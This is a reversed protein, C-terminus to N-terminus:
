QDSFPYDMAVSAPAVYYGEIYNIGYGWLTQLAGASEVHSAIVKKAYGQVEKICKSIAQKGPDTGIEQMFSGDLKVYTVDTLHALVKSPTHSAGYRTIATHIKLARVDKTFQGAQKLYTSADTETFQLILSEGGIKAAKLAVSIWPVLSADALSDSTLTVMIRAHHGNANHEALAKLANLIVWRDIKTNLGAAAAAQLFDAPQLEKDKLPLRLLVEYTEEANEELNLIAQWYLKFLNKELATHLHKAMGTDTSADIMDIPNRVFVGNGASNTQRVKVAADAAYTLADQGTPVTEDIIAAGISVTVRLTKKQVEFLHDDIKKRIKEAFGRAKEIDGNAIIISFTEDSFRSLAGTNEAVSSRLLAALEILVTDAGGIGVSTRLTQFDDIQIFFITAPRTKSRAAAVAADVQGMFYQRNRLGTLPDISAAEKLKAELEADSFGAPAAVSRIMVQTCPEGDYVAHSFVMRAEFEHGDAHLCPSTIEHKDNEKSSQRRRLLDKLEKHGREAVLDMIPVGALEDSDSYGFLALYAANAQVHMGDTVYAVADQATDLLMESRKESERLDGALRNKERLTALNGMERDLVLLLRETEGRPVVDRAGAKLGALITASNNDDALIIMPLDRGLKRVHGIAKEPTCGAVTPRALLADWEGSKLLAVLSEENRAFDARTAKGAKRLANLLLEAEDQSEHLLLLRITEIIPQQSMGSVPFDGPTIM